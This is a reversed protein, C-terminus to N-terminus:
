QIDGCDTCEYGTTVEEDWAAKDVVWKKEYVADHNITNTGVQVQTSETSFSNCSENGAKKQEEIHESIHGTFDGGCGNCIEKSVEEYVPLEETWAEKIVTDEFHGEEDHHVTATIPIWNHTHAPPTTTSSPADVNTIENDAEESELSEEEILEEKTANESENTDSLDQDKIESEKSEEKKLDEKTTSESKNKNSLDQSKVEDSIEKNKNVATKNHELSQTNTSDIYLLGFCISILLFIIVSAILIEKKREYILDFIKKNM